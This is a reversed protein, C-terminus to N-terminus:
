VFPANSDEQQPAAVALVQWEDPVGKLQHLGRDVFELGSGVVLDRVTRTVLVEDTGALAAVRAGIHVALGRVDPGAIEIEGTHVGARIHIDLARLADIMALACRVARAPGDFTALFGDGTTNVERGGFRRLADRIVGHHADLLAAWAHDGLAAARQTSGVIDTFLVTALVRDPQPSHRIGTVFEEIEGLIPEADGIWPLHDDGPLEVLRAGPVHEAIYRGSEVRISRDGTRHVVLTPVRIAPLIPRIDIRANMRTLAIAAGPSAASRLYAAWGDRFAPDRARSPARTELGVPGGWSTEIEEFFRQTEAESQGWPYDAAWQRRAYGALVVVGSTRGPYTAAFLLTMPAGESHGVLTPRRAGVADCVAVLDGMRTELTPLDRDPVRDSLGTGRKDFLILRSFSALRELFAAYSPDAWMSDINSVWGPVYVVDRAGDGVVQYAIRVGDAAEAYRTRPPRAAQAASM